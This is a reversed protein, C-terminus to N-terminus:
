VEEETEPAEEAEEEEEAVEAEAEVEDEADVEVLAVPLEDEEEDTKDKKRDALGEKIAEVLYETIIKISKTADDNAPGPFDIQTPDSNTDVIGFTRIGLKKAEALAIHEHSIDVM